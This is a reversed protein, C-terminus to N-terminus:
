PARGWACLATAPLRLEGREMFPEAAARLAHRARVRETEALGALREAVGAAFQTFIRWYEDASALTFLMPLPEIGLEVFGGARLVRELEGPVSLRFPGPASPDPPPAPLATGIATAAISFFPNKQPEDWVAIAVLGGPVLVRRMELAVKLPDPCFMLGCACTVADFSRDGFRLESADMELVEMNGIGAEGARRRTADAMAPAIDTAVVRGSSGVREALPLAPHGTGCALDLIRAGPRAAMLCFWDTLPQISRAYWDYGADWARAVANWAQRQGASM